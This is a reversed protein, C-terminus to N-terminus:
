QFTAYLFHTRGIGQSKMEGVNAWPLSVLGMEEPVSARQQFIGSRIDKFLDVALDVRQNFTKLDLGLNYKKSKEWRLNGAGVQTEVITGSSPDWNTGGTRREMITLYPFRVSNDWTLKDNGVVGYSFRFKWFDVFPLKDKVWEYQSPAWAMSIAPFLGFKKGNEFAESGTYGLNGEVTYTDKYAYTFRSSLGVNRKPIATLDTAFQSGTYDELNFNILGTVRHDTDFLREYNARTEFYYTKEVQTYRYYGPDTGEVTTKLDLEGNRKRGSAYYLTPSKSRVSHMENDANMHFLMSASLGKTIMRLDQRFQVNLKNTNRYFKQFGTHNLLVYPSSQDNNRGYAPLQGNSYVLPVTVPTM